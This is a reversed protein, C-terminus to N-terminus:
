ALTKKTVIEDPFNMPLVIFALVYQRRKSQFGVRLTRVVAVFSEDLVNVIPGILPLGLGVAFLQAWTQGSSISVYITILISFVWMLVVFFFLSTAYLAYLFAAIDLLFCIGKIASACFLKCRRSEQEPESEDMLPVASVAM